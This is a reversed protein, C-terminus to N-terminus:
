SILNNKEIVQVLAPFELLHKELDNVAYTKAYDTLADAYISLPSCQMSQALTRLRQAFAQTDKIALSECLVAWERSQLLRLEATLLNWDDAKKGTALTGPASLDGGAAGANAPSACRLFQELEKYLTHQSFPKRIHGNFRSRLDNEDNAHISASVAIVPLLELGPIKRIEALTARGDMVPMRIDMLVLDPKNKSIAELAEKGNQALQIRHHSRAFMSAILNRNIANDDVVLLMAPVFDNFDVLRDQETMDSVPLRASIAINPFSLSFVSGKGSASELTVTGNMMEMLRQVIHLGLGSGQNEGSRRPHSQVFPKFIEERQESSIGTGSDAVDIQLTGRSRDNGDPLWKMKLRVFGQDTFKIANGVLNVLVQRLRLRDLLLGPPASEVEFKLDLFKVAALQAFMMQLFGCIERVDAPELCLELRGAELKSLDLVDNILQL